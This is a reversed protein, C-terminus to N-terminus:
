YLISSDLLGSSVYFLQLTHPALVMSAPLSRCPSVCSNTSIQSNYGVVRELNGGPYTIISFPKKYM